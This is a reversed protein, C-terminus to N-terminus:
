FVFFFKKELVDRLFLLSFRSLFSLAPFFFHVEVMDLM